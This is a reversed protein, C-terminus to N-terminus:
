EGVLPLRGLHLPELEHLVGHEVVARGYPARFLLLPFFHEELRGPDIVLGDPLDLEIEVSSVRLQPQKGGVPDIVAVQPVDQASVRAESRRDTIDLPHSVDGADEQHVHLRRVHEDAHCVEQVPMVERGKELHVDVPDVPKHCGKLLAKVMMKGVEVPVELGDSDVRPQEEDLPPHRPEARDQRDISSANHPVKEEQLPDCRKHPDRDADKM